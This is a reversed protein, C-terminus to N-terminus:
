VPPLSPGHINQPVAAHNSFYGSNEPPDRTRWQSYLWRLALRLYQPFCAGDTQVQLSQTHGPFGPTQLLHNTGVMEEKKISVTNSSTETFFWRLFKGSPICAM